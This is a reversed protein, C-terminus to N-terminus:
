KRQFEKRNKPPVCAAQKSLLPGRLEGRQHRPLEGLGSKLDAGPPPETHLLGATRTGAIEM